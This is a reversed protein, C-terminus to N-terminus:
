SLVVSSWLDNPKEIYLQVRFKEAISRPSIVSSMKVNLPIFKLDYAMRKKTKSPIEKSLKIKTMSNEFNFFFSPM